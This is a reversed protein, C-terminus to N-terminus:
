PAATALAALAGEVAEALNERSPMETFAHRARRADVTYDIGCFDIGLLRIGAPPSLRRLLDGEEGPALAPIGAWAEAELWGMRGLGGIYRVRRPTFRFFMFDLQLYQEAEPQYRLYRAVLDADPEFREAEGLLTMRQATQVNSSEPGVVSLSVRGDALLNKTHEALASICLLPRHADDVVCPLATAYPYGPLQTSHTAVTVFAAEHLLHIASDAAIKM